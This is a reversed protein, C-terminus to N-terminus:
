CTVYKSDMLIVSLLYSTFISCAVTFQSAQKAATSNNSAPQQNPSATATPTGAVKSKSTWFNGSADVMIRKGGAPGPTVPTPAPTSPTPAPKSLTPAPKSLTPAPKSLTPAPKSLTPAPKSLTPAPKSLTPAPKSLTLAPKSLTLAPKSLTLAPKSPTSAPNSLAPAPNSLAPAPKSLAPAPKSLAVAPKSLAVAPKSLAVAPKSLAVAPKSLAPAPKSLSAAPKSLTPSAFTTSKTQTALSNPPNSTKVNFTSVDKAKSVESVSNNSSSKIGWTNPLKAPMNEVKGVNPTTPSSATLKDGPNVNTVRPGLRSAM